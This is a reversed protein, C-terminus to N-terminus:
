DSCNRVALADTSERCVCNVTLDLCLVISIDCIAVSVSNALDCLCVFFRLLLVLADAFLFCFFSM